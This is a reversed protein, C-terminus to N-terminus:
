ALAHWHQASAQAGIESDNIFDLCAMRIREATAPSDLRFFGPKPKGLEQARDARAAYIANKIAFFVTNALFLPPEGIAKSRFITPGSSGELLHVRFDVPIDNFSPIKYMGPGKSFLRGDRSYVMEETTFLGQGQVFAGEIQGIDIAPNISAGCDHIIDARLVTHDGTLCDVEVESVAVGYAFYHFPEGDLENVGSADCNWGKIPTKYYGQGTLNVRNMWAEQAASALTAIKEEDKVPRTPRHKDLFPKLREMVMDAAIKAANGNIDTGSSAATAVTNACKDTATDAIYVASLPIDFCTAVVQAVKTHLGQGMEIGGHSVLCTGDKYVHVLACGQNLQTATFSIGFMTPMAAIGRKKYRNRENFVAVAAQRSKFDSKGMLDSWLETLPCPGVEQGFFTKQDSQYLNASILEERTVGLETAAHEYMVEGVFMGQPGGFGRFATNSPTNTKAMQGRVRVSPVYCGNLVHFMARNMVPQSLDYSYGANLTLDVDVALLRRTSKCVALKYTSVCAHRQGSCAMDDHRELQFRVTRELKHSAVAAMCAIINSRSEKGGFGGGLRKTSVYIKHMPVGTAEAIMHQAESVNQTSCTVHLEGEKNEVRCANTEFYFQEQGGMFTQGEVVLAGEARAKAFVADVDACGEERVTHMLPETKYFLPKFFSKKEVADPLGVIPELKEYTINVQSVALRAAYKSEAVVCAVIQGVATVTDAVFVEDDHAIAGIKNVGQVDKATVLDVFGEIRTALSHDISVIKAHAVTSLVPEIWCERWGWPTDDVYKAQGSVQLLASKHQESSGAVEKGDHAAAKAGAHQLGRAPPRTYNRTNHETCASLAFNVEPPLDGSSQEALTSLFFKYFFGAALATRYEAMGGPADAPLSLEKKIAAMAGSLNAMTWEKGEWFQELGSARISRFSMGGFAFAAQAVTNSGPQFRVKLAANVIALDDDRRRGQKFVQFRDDKTTYPIFLRVVVEGEQLATKRYGTFFQSVPITRYEVAPQSRSYGGKAVPIRAATIQADMALHCPNLDSIPSATVLNGALSGANRVATGAFWYLLASYGKLCPTRPDSAGWRDVAANFESMITSLNVGAGVTVGQDGFELVGMEPVRTTSILTLPYSHTLKYMKEIRRETNGGQFRVAGASTASHQVRLLDELSIPAAFDCQFGCHSGRLLVGHSLPKLPAFWESAKQELEEGWKIADDGLKEPVVHGACRKAGAGEGDKAFGHYAQLIPRYGTCRCLNGDMAHELESVKPEKSTMWLGYMAMVIGPTCYGCQTGHSDALAQQIPHLQKRAKTLGEVTTLHKGDLDGVTAM